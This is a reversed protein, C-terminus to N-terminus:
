LNKTTNNNHYINGSPVPPHSHPHTTQTSRGALNHSVPINIINADNQVMPLNVYLPQNKVVGNNPSSFTVLNSSNRVNPPMNNIDTDLCIRSYTM